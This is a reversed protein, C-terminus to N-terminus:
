QIDEEKEEDDDDDNDNNVHTTLTHIFETPSIDFLFINANELTLTNFDGAKGSSFTYMGGRLRLVLHITSYAKIDYDYLCRGDELQKGGFILRQQDLPIGEIAQIEYKLHEVTHLLTIAVVLSKGTLTKVSITIFGSAIQSPTLEVPISSGAMLESDLVHEITGDNTDRLYEYFPYLNSIPNIHLSSGKGYHYKFNVIKGCTSKLKDYIALVNDTLTSKRAIIHIPESSGYRFTSHCFHPNSVLM